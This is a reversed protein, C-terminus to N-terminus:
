STRHKRTRFLQIPVALAVCPLYMVFAELFLPSPGGDRLGYSAILTSAM